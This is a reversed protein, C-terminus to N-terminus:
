EKGNEALEKGLIQASQEALVAKQGSEFDKKLDAESEEAVEADIADELEKTRETLWKIRESAFKAASDMDVFATTPHCLNAETVIVMNDLMDAFTVDTEPFLESERGKAEKQMAVLNNLWSYLSADGAKGDFGMVWAKCRIELGTYSHYIAGDKTLVIFFHGFDAVDVVDEKRVGVVLKLLGAKNDVKKKRAVKAM